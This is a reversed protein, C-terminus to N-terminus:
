RAEEWSLYRVQHMDRLNDEWGNLQPSVLRRVSLNYLPVVPYDKVAVNAAASLLDNRKSLDAQEQASRMLADFENSQYRGYNVSGIDSQLLSLYHEANNEGIWGAWAVSFKGQRLDTFHAKLEAQHLTTKVGIRRWM